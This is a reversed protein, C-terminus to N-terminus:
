RSPPTRFLLHSKKCVACNRAAGSVKNNQAVRKIYLRPICGKLEEMWESGSGGGEARAFERNPAYAVPVGFDQM